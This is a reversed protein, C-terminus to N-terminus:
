MFSTKRRALQQLSDIKPPFAVKAHKGKMRAGALDGLGGQVWQGAPLVIDLWKECNFGCMGSKVDTVLERVIQKILSAAWAMPIDSAIVRPMVEEMIRVREQRPLSHLNTASIKDAAAVVDLMDRLGVAESSGASTAEMANFVREGQMTHHGNSQGALTSEISLLETYKKANTVLTTWPSKSPGRTVVSLPASARSEPSLNRARSAAALSRNDDDLRPLVGEAAAAAGEKSSRRQKAVASLGDDAVRKGNKREKKNGPGKSKGKGGGKQVHSPPLLEPIAAGDDQEIVEQVEVKVVPVGIAAQQQQQQQMEVAEKQKRAKEAAASKLAAKLEDKSQAKRMGAPWMKALDAQYWQGVQEAQGPRLQDGSPQVHKTLMTTSLRQLKVKYFPDDAILLGRMVENQENEIMDYTFTEPLEATTVGFVDKFSSEPVFTFTKETLLATSSSADFSSLVWHPNTGSLTKAAVDWEKKFSESSYYGVHCADWDM